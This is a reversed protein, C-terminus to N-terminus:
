PQNIKPSNHHSISASCKWYWGNYYDYIIKFDSGNLLLNRVQVSKETSVDWNLHIFAKKYKGFVILDIKTIKGFHYKKFINLIDNKKIYMEVRPICISPYKYSLILNTM